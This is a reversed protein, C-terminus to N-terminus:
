EQKYKVNWLHLGQPPATVGVFRRDKKELLFKIDQPTLKGQGVDLLAGIIIRVMNYLFGNGRLIFELENEKKSFSVEYLHRVKSGKATSKASSFSTFDHTGQFYRCAEEMAILDLKYPFYYSYNRKFVDKEPGNIIYYRYEKEIVDYRAHFDSPVEKIANVYIDNPLLANLAKKWSETSLQFETEFHLSQVKAHVGTDTRGSAHVRISQGKHVKTLAKEIEDQVTRKGPQVQYGSFNTGDYSIICNIRRM